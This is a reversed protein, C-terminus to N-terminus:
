QSMAERATLPLTFYFRAGEGAQSELWIRGGQAEVIEKAITLGLGSGPIRDRAEQGRYFKEFIAEQEHPPIGPGGNSVEVVVGDPGEKASVRIKSSVPAYKLANGLLQRIVLMTMGPDVEVQPLETEAQVEIERGESFPEMQELASAILTGVATPERRLRVQGAGIRAVTIAETVLHALRDTEEEVVQLLEADVEDCQGRTAVTSAAAKISTLPTKFEHALADLLTSKLRENQRTAEARAAREQARERELAIAALQAVAQIAEASVTSGAMGLSGLTRGGLRVPVTSQSETDAAALVSVPLLEPHDGVQWVKGTAQEFFAVQPVHFVESIRQAIQSALGREGDGLMLARSFEYVLEMERRRRGAEEARQRASTSLQSATIATTLFVCLAVWNQPDAITWTGVPPLFFFNYGAVAAFSATIAEDRGGRAALILIVLLFTFSTTASNLGLSFDVWTVAAILLLAGGIRIARSLAPVRALM